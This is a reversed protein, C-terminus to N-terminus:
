RKNAWKTVPCDGPYADCRALCCTECYDDMRGEWPDPDREDKSVGCCSCRARQDMDQCTACPQFGAITDFGCGRECPVRSGGHNQQSYPLGAFKDVLVFESRASM